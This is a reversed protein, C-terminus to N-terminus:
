ALRIYNVAKRRDSIPRSDVRRDITRPLCFVEAETDCPINLGVLNVSIAQPDVHKVSLPVVAM